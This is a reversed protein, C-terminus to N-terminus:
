HQLFRHMNLLRITPAEDMMIFSSKQNRISMQKIVTDMITAIIPSYASEYKPNNVISIVAPPKESNINIPVEDKSLVIFIKKSSIKMFANALASKVGATQKDSGVGNIFSSAM